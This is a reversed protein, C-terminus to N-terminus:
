EAVKDHISGYLRSNWITCNAWLTNVYKTPAPYPPPSLPSIIIPVEIAPGSFFANKGPIYARTVNGVM